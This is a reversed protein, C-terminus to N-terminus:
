KLVYNFNKEVTQNLKKNSVQILKIKFNNWCLSM